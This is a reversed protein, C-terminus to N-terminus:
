NKVQHKRFSLYSIWLFFVILAGTAPLALDAATVVKGFLVYGYFEDFLPRVSLIQGPLFRLFGYAGSLGSFASFIQPACYVALATFAATLPNRLVASLCLTMATVSICVLYSVGLSILFFRLMTFDYPSGLYIFSDYFTCFSTDSGHIGLFLAGILNYFGFVFVFFITAATLSALLKSLILKRKGHKSSIILADIGTSYEVSFCPSIFLILLFGLIWPAFYYQFFAAYEYFDNNGIVLNGKQSLMTINKQILLKEEATADASQYEKKLDDIRKKPASNLNYLFLRSELANLKKEIESKLRKEGDATIYSNPDATLLNSEAIADAYGQATVEGAYAPLYKELMSGEASRTKAIFIGICFLMIVVAAILTKKFGFIKKLEYYIM